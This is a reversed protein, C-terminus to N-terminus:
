KTEASTLRHGAFIMLTVGKDTLTEWYMQILNHFDMIKEWYAQSKNLILAKYSIDHCRRDRIIELQIILVTLYCDKSKKESVLTVWNRDRTNYVCETIM